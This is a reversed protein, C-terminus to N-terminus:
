FLPDFHPSPFCCLGPPPADPRPRGQGGAPPSPPAPRPEFRAWGRAPRDLSWILFAFSNMRAGRVTGLPPIVGSKFWVISTEPPILGAAGLVEPAIMGAAGLM